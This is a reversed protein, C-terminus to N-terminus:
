AGKRSPTLGRDILRRLAATMNPLDDQQKRWAQVRDKQENDLRLTFTTFETDNDKEM